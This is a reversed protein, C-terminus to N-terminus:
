CPSVETMLPKFFAVYLTIDFIECPKFGSLGPVLKQQAFILQDNAISAEVASGQNNPFFYKQVTSGYLQLREM